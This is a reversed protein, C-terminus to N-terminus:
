EPTVDTAEMHFPDEIVRRFVKAVSGLQYGDIFRHDITATINITERVALEGDIVVPREKIAGVLLLVPARAFPTPPAFGEDFGLMGVSTIVGAGFPFKEIGLLKSDLGLAGGLYGNLWIVGPLMFRPVLKLLQMTQSLQKDEKSHLREARERLEQAIEAVSKKDIDDVKIKFLNKGDELAVLFSVAVSPYPFFRRFLIRGNLTPTAALSDALAKGVLHTITVKQGTTERVHALYKRAETCDLTIKGYINGERPAAWTAIALKRRLTM